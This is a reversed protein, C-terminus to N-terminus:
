IIIEYITQAARLSVDFPSKSSFFHLGFSYTAPIYSSLLSDAFFQYFPTAQLILPVAYHHALVEVQIAVERGTSFGRFGFVITGSINYVIVPVNEAISEVSYSIDSARPGFFYKLQEEFVKDDRDIDYGGLALGIAEIVSLGEYRAKCVMEGPDFDPINTWNAPIPPLESLRLHDLFSPAAIVVAVVGVIVVIAFGFAGYCSWKLKPFDCKFMFPMIPHFFALIPIFIGRLCISILFPRSYQAKYVSCDFSIIIANLTMFVCILVAHVAHRRTFEKSQAFENV